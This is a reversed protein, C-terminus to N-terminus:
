GAQHKKVSDVLWDCWRDFGAGTKASIEFIEINRNLKKADKKAREIDFDAMSPHELMDIKNILMAKSLNRKRINAAMILGDLAMMQVAEDIPAGKYKWDKVTNPSIGLFEAAAKDSNHDQRAVVFRIQDTSLQSCIAEFEETTPSPANKDTKTQSQSM